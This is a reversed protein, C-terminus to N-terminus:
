LYKSLEDIIDAAVESKQKRPYDKRTSATLISIQNEDFGFTTGPNRTSNLVIFDANKKTLKERAHTEEHDTELAFCVLRQGSKKMRGLTAAIDQTPNLRLSM